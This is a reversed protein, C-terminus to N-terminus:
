TALLMLDGHSPGGADLRMTRPELPLPVRPPSLGRLPPCVPSSRLGQIELDSGQRLELDVSEMANTMRRRM